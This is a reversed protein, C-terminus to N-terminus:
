GLKSASWQAVLRAPMASVKSANRAHTHTLTLTRWVSPTQPVPAPHAPLHSRKRVSGGLTALFVAVSMDVLRLSFLSHWLTCCYQQTYSNFYFNNDDFGELERNTM